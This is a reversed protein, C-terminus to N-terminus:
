SIFFFLETFNFFCACKFSISSSFERCGRFDFFFSKIGAFNGFPVHLSSNSYGKVM